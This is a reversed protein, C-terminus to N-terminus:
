FQFVFPALLVIGCILVLTLPLGLRLYDRASYGGAGMVLLNASHAAPSLFTLSAGLAIYLAMARPDAGVARAAGIAIPALFFAAVQGSIVQSILMTMLLLSMGIALPGWAVLQNVLMGGILDAAGTKLMATSVSAMGAILFVARWDVARYAEEMKLCGSLVMAVAGILMAEHIPLWNMASILLAAATIILALGAQRSRVSREADSPARLVLFDPDDQLRAIARDPGYALMSDGHQLPLDAQDTRVSRNGHWLALVTAGYRSRFQLEKLTHGVALSRPSPIVEFLSAGEAPLDPDYQEGLEVCVGLETMQQVREQRGVVILRDEARLIESPLPAPIAHHNRLIALVSLGYRKGIQSHELNRSVLCSETPVRVTNLREGLEFWDVLRQSLPLASRHSPSDPRPGLLHWGFLAIFAIGLAALPLGVPALDLLEYGILGQEQLAASVVLNGTNLVTAMGGLSTAFALPLLVQSSPVRARYSAETAAPLLLAAAVIKNMVLSLGASMLMVLLVLRQENQANRGLWRGMKRTIGTVALGQTMIFAGLITIVAPSSFGAIMEESTLVGTLGLTLAVCLAILDPSLRNSLLAVLAFVITAAVIWIPPIAMPM